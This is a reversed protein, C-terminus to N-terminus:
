VRRFPLDDGAQEVEVGVGFVEVGVEIGHFGREVLKRLLLKTRPRPHQLLYVRTQTLRARFHRLRRRVGFQVETMFSASSRLRMLILGPIKPPLGIMRPMRMATSCMRPM